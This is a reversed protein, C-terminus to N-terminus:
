PADTKIYDKQQTVSHAMMDADKQKAKDTEDDAYKDSLYIHRLASSGIKRGFIKNLVRTIGNIATIPTGDRQVLFQLSKVSKKYLPHHLLYTQITQFLVEPISEKQEGFKKATKYVNFVFQKSALDIYNTDKPLADTWKKVVTMRLYDLNRRPPIDTYLSLIVYSLLTNWQAETLDKKPLEEVEKKLEDKKAVVEKWEIWNEKQKENMTDTKNERSEKASGMMKDYYFQHVKKYGAKDKFLSLVSSLISYLTKRTSDAYAEILKDILDTKKLFALSNFPKKDNLVYLARVYSKATSEGVKRKELIEKHLQVMFESVKNM